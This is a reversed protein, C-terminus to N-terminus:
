RSFLAVVWRLIPRVVFDYTAYTFLSVLFFSKVDTRLRLWPEHKSVIPRRGKASKPSADLATRAHSM